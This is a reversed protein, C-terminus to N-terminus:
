MSFSGEELPIATLGLNKPPLFVEETKNKDRNETDDKWKEEKKNQNSQIMQDTQVVTIALWCM